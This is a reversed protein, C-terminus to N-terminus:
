GVSEEELNLAMAMTGNPFEVLENYMVDSLGYIRAVGDGVQVVTGVSKATIPEGFHEIQQRIISSIEEASVQAM